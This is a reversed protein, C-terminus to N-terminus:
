RKGRKPSLTNKLMKIIILLVLLTLIFWFIIELIIILYSSKVVVNMTDTATNGYEDAVTLTVTYNGIIDFEFEPEVGYLLVTEGGYTFSWTYNVIGVNDSSGSGVFQVTQGKFSLV